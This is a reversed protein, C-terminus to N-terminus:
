FECSADNYGISYAYNLENAIRTAMKQTLGTMTARVLKNDVYEDIAWYGNRPSVAYHRNM